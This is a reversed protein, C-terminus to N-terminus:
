MTHTALYYPSVKSFASNIDELLGNSLKTGRGADIDGCQNRILKPPPSSCPSASTPRGSTGNRSYCKSSGPTTAHYTKQFEQPDEIDEQDPHPAQQDIFIELKGGAADSRVEEIFWLGERGLAKAFLSTETSM